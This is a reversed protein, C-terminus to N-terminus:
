VFSALERITLKHKVEDAICLGGRKRISEYARRLFGKPLQVAGGAGQTISLCLNM